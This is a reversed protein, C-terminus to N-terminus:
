LRRLCRRDQEPQPQTEVEAWEQGLRSERLGHGADAVAAAVVRYVGWDCLGRDPLALHPDPLPESWWHGSLPDDEDTAGIVCCDPGV